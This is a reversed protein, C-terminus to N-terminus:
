RKKLSELTKACRGVHWQYRPLGSDPLSIDRYHYGSRFRKSLGLKRLQVESIGLQAAAEATYFWTQGTQMQSRISCSDSVLQLEAQKATIEQM